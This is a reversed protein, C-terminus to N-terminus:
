RGAEVPGFAAFDVAPVRPLAAGAAGAPPETLLRKVYAKVDQETIRGKAGTGEGPRPRRGLERAFRRM